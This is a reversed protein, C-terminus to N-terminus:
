NNFTVLHRSKVDAFGQHWFGIPNKLTETDDSFKFLGTKSSLVTNLEDAGAVFLSPRKNKRVM